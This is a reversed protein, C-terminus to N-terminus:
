VYIFCFDDNVFNSSPEFSLIHVNQKLSNLKIINKFFQLQFYLQCSLLYCYLNLFIDM